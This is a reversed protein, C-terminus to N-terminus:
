YGENLIELKNQARKILGLDFVVNSPLRLTRLNDALYELIAQNISSIAHTLFSNKMGPDYSLSANILGLYSAQLLDEPEAGTGLYRRSRQYAFRLNYLVLKQRADPVKKIIEEDIENNIERNMVPLKRINKWHIPLVLSKETKEM